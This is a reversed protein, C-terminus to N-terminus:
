GRGGAGSLEALTHALWRRYAAVCTDGQGTINYRVVIGTAGLARRSALLGAEELRKAHSQLNGDSLGLADRLDVFALDRHKALTAMIHLRTPQHIIALGDPLM